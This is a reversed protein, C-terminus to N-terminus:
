IIEDLGRVRAWEGKDIEVRVVDGMPVLVAGIDRAIGLGEIEYTGGDTRPYYRDRNEFIEWEEETTPPARTELVRSLLLSSNDISELSGQITRNDKLLLRLTTGLLARLQHAQHADTMTPLPHSSSHTWEPKRNITLSDSFDSSDTDIESIDSPYVILLLLRNILM